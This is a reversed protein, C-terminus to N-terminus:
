QEDEETDSGPPTSLPSFSGFSPYASADQEKFPQPSKGDTMEVLELLDLLRGSCAELMVQGEAEEEANGRRGKGTGYVSGRAKIGTEMADRLADTPSLTDRDMMYIFVQELILSIKANAAYSQTTGKLALLNSELDQQTPRYRLFDPIKGSALPLLLNTCFAVHDGGAMKSTSLLVQLLATPLHIFDELINDFFDSPTTFETPLARSVQVLQDNNTRQLLICPRSVLAILRQRLEIAQRGGLTRIAMEVNNDSDDSDSDQEVQKEDDTEEHADPMDEDSGYDAMDGTEFDVERAQNGERTQRKPGESEKQWIEPFDKLAEASATALIARVIRRRVGRSVSVADGLIYRWILSEKLTSEQLTEDEKGRGVCLEWDSELFDLTMGLWLKWREWRHHHSKSCNLAWGVIHWFDDAKAWLSHSQAADGAIASIDDGSKPSLSATVGHHGRDRRRSSEESFSFAQRVVSYAPGHVTNHVCRLYRLAADAGRQADKSRTKTTIKPYVILSSAFALYTAPAILGIHPQAPTSISTGAALLSSLFDFGSAYQGGELYAKAHTCLEYSAQKTPRRQVRRPRAGVAELAVSPTAHGSVTSSPGRPAQEPQNSASMAMEFAHRRPPPASKLDHTPRAVRRTPRVLDRPM